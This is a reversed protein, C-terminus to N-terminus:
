QKNLFKEDFKKFLEPMYKRPKKDPEIEVGISNNKYQNQAKHMEMDSHIGANTKKMEYSLACMAEMKKHSETQSSWYAGIYMILAGTVAMNVFFMALLLKLDYSKLNSEGPKLFLYKRDKFKKFM